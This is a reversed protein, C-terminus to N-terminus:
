PTASVPLRLTVRLGGEPANEADVTGGHAEAARRSIALGLGHGGSGRDRADEVRTFPQFLRVLEAEPVGAGRDCVTVVAEGDAEAVTVAVTTEPATHRVANRVVNEVAARLLAPDGAVVPAAPCELSVRRQRARAEFDADEVVGEVLAPLDVPKRELAAQGSELRSLSLVEGVLRELADAEKGIRALAQDRDEAREALELAVRLRALPSRLEHSVDRLLRRQGELLETLREAMRDFDRALAAVEDRGRHGVRVSLDGAALAQAAGRLRRLRRTVLASLGLSVLGTVVVAILVRAWAPLLGLHGPDLVDVLYRPPEVGPLRAVLAFHGRHLYHSGPEMTRPLWEALRRRPRAQSLVRGGGDVLLPRHGGPRQRLWRNVAPRGGEAWLAAAATAQAQLDRRGAELAEGGYLRNIAFITAALLVAALWFALFVKTFLSGM